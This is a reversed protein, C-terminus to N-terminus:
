SAHELPAWASVTTGRGPVSRIALRGQVLRLRERLSTLGLGSLAAPAEPDFGAGADAVVLSLGGADRELKVDAQRSGSHRLANRLSEQAVRYFCTAVARPVEDGSVSTEVRVDLGQAGFEAGLQLLAAPLGLHDLVAPHMRHAIRRIEGALDHLEERIGALRLPEGSGTGLRELESLEHGLMAVRQILDDHLERAVWAREEEQALLLRGGFQRTTAVYRRQQIIMSAIFAASLILAVLTGTLFVWWLQDIPSAPDVM